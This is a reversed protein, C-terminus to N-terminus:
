CFQFRRIAARDEWILLDMTTLTLPLSESSVLFLISRRLNQDFSGDGLGMSFLLGDDVSVVVDLIGDGNFDATAVSGLPMKFDYFVPTQFTGDGIGLMVVLDGDNQYYDTNHTVLDVISDNNLDAIAFDFVPFISDALLFTGDGRSVRVQLETITPYTRIFLDSLGDSNADAADLSIMFNGAPVKSRAIVSGEGRGLLVTVIAIDSYLTSTANAVDTIGDGSFDGAAVYGSHEFEMPTSFTGDGIGLRISMDGVLDVIGDDNMDATTLNRARGAVTVPATFTGDGNGMLRTSQIPDGNANFNAVALDFDGDGDFDASVISNPRSGSLFTQHPLFTGDGLGLLVSIDDTYHNATALDPVDDGNFDATLLSAPREGVAFSTLTSFSGDGVGLLVSVSDASSNALALDVIGDLNFDKAVLSDPDPGAPWSGVVSFSGDGNALAVEVHDLEDNAVALDPLGDGNFDAVAASVTGDQFEYVEQHILDGDANGLFINAGEISTTVLDECGDSNIDTTLISQLGEGAFYLRGPFLPEDAQSTAVVVPALAATALAQCIQRRREHFRRKGRSLVPRISKLVTSLWNRIRM